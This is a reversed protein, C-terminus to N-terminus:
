SRQTTADKILDSIFLTWGLKSIKYRIVGSPSSQIDCVSNNYMIWHRAFVNAKHLSYKDPFVRQIFNILEMISWAGDM